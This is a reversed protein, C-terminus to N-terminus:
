LWPSVIARLSVLTLVSYALLRLQPKSIRKGVWLGLPIGIALFPVALVAILAAKTVESGFTIPFVISQIILAPIYISFLVGRTESSSWSHAMAWIVLFPGGMGVIGLCIGSGFCALLTWFFAVKERPTPRITMQMILMGLIVFGVLQKIFAKDLHQMNFLICMGLIFGTLRLGAPVLVRSWKIESRMGFSSFGSQFIAAVVSVEISAPLTYGMTLLIPISFLGGGFGVASQMGYGCM